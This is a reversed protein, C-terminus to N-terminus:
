RVCADCAQRAYVLGGVIVVAVGVFGAVAVTLVGGVEATSYSTDPVPTAEVEPQDSAPTARPQNCDGAGAPDLCDYGSEGCTYSGDVCTCECCDGGDWGCVETNTAATCEGDSILWVPEHCEDGDGKSSRSSITDDSYSETSSSSTMTPTSYPNHYPYYIDDYISNSPSSAPSNTACNIPASPDLCYFNSCSYYFPICTCRCCDGGDWGCELNNLSSDCMGDGLWNGTGTCEPYGSITPSPTPSDTGCELPAGPDICDYGYLGCGSNYGYRRCTCRCCDGGDYGCEANNLDSDCYSDQLDYTNGGCGPLSLSCNSPVDPDKCDFGGGEVGCPHALDGGCTCACCDGGDFGCAANNNAEDCFGDQIHPVYGACASEEPASTPNATPSATLFCESPAEPDECSYEAEAKDCHVDGVFCTCECCDGGDFECAATNTAVDCIGDAILSSEEECDAYDASSDSQDTSCEGLRVLLCFASLFCARGFCLRTM